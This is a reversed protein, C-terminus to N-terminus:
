ELVKSDCKQYFSNESLIDCFRLEGYTVLFKKSINLANRVNM